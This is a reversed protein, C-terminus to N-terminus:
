KKATMFWGGRYGTAKGGSESYACNGLSGFIQRAEAIVPALRERSGVVWLNGGPYMRKDVTEFGKRAFFEKLSEKKDVHTQSAVNTQRAGSNVPPPVNVPQTSVKPAPQVAAPLVTAPKDALNKIRDEISLIMKRQEEVIVRLDDLSGKLVSFKEDTETQFEENKNDFFAELDNFKAELNKDIERANNVIGIVEDHIRSSSASSIAAVKASREAINLQKEVDLKAKEVIDLKKSVDSMAEVAMQMNELAKDMESMEYAEAM